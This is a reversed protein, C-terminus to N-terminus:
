GGGGAGGAYAGVGYVTPFTNKDDPYEISTVNLGYNREMIQMFYKATVENYNSKLYAEVRNLIITRPNLLADYNNVLRAISRAFENLNIQPTNVVPTTEEPPPEGGGEASDDFGGTGEDGMGEDGMPPGEEGGGGGFGASDDDEAPDPSAQESLTFRFIDSLKVRSEELSAQSGGAPQSGPLPAIGPGNPRGELPISEREYRVIYRDVVQDLSIPKQPPAQFDAMQKPPDPLNQERLKAKKHKSVGRVVAESLAVRELFALKREAINCASNKLAFPIYVQYRALM